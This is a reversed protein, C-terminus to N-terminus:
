KSKGEGRLWPLPRMCGMDGSGGAVYIEGNESLTIEYTRKVLWCEQECEELKSRSLKQDRCRQECIGRSGQDTTEHGTEIKISNGEIQWSGYRSTWDSEHLGVGHDPYLKLELCGNDVGRYEEGTCNGILGSRFDKPFITRNIKYCGNKLEFKNTLALQIDAENTLFASFVWGTFENNVPEIDPYKIPAYKVKLWKGSKGAIKMESQSEELIFVPTSYNIVKLKESDVSPKERLVIGNLSNVYLVNSNKKDPLCTVLFILFFLLRLIM